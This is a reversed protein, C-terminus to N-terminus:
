KPETAVTAPPDWGDWRKLPEWAERLAAAATADGALAKERAQRARAGAEQDARYQQAKAQEETASLPIWM